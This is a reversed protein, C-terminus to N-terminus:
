KLMIMKRVSTYDGAQMRYLYVGSTVKQAQDDTGDWKVQYTGASKTEQVLTRVKQGKLNYIELRVNQKDKVSYSITTEPNFPNPYNGSLATAIVPTAPEPNAVVGEVVIDDMVWIYWLGDNSPPDDAHWALKINQNAYAALPITIPNTPYNNYAGGPQSTADWLPTWSSGGDTSVKVYYHDDHTSGLQVYSKFTLQADNPCTFQPSILWEDQHNYSWWLAAQWTGDPPVVPPNLTITGVRCWTPTVGYTNAAGTDTIIQTWGAPPFTAGEFSEDLVIGTPQLVFNLTTTQGTVVVVGTQTATAFGAASCTVTHTGAPVQLSYAGTANSTATYTGATIVAGPIAVNNSQRVIGAITGIQTLKQIANSFAPVSFVNGTYVAKVAWKYMGDTVTSWGIDQYATATITNPTLLSWLSENAEQGQLLRWVKYGVLARSTEPRYDTLASETHRSAPLATFIGDNAPNVNMVLPQLHTLRAPATPASYGVYGSLNWDYNLSTSLTYLTTWANNNYIMNGLGDHAPGADTGAPYVGAAHTVNYGFWLEQGAQIPVPVSLNVTNFADVTYGTFPEDVVMQAPGSASGGTWVRIRYTGTDGPWFKVAYLSMGVFDTLNAAPWRSAVDFTGGNTLGISNNNSDADWHIWEGGGTGPEMWTINVNPLAEVAQVGGAPLAIENLTIIGMNFDGVGVSITGNASIYGQKTISYSYDELNYVNPITFQGQANTTASYDAMGTLTVEAGALGATPADSGVVTGTVNVVAHKLVMNSIVPMSMVDGTYVSKVAWKYEGDPLAQWGANVYTTDTIPTATLLTWAAENTEQGQLLRWVRYGLLSRDLSGTNYPTLQPMSRDALRTPVGTSSGVYVDDIYWGAYSVVSTAYWEFSIQVNPNNAFASLDVNLVQWPMFVAAASSGWVTTGNVLILGYDWTNYGNMYHWFNLVPDSVGTLNYTKRLYSWGSSNTYGGQIKTGWMGTGSHASTPPTDTYTDIDTYSAPNYNATWEWDGLPNSWNSSPVWDGDDMEFNDFNSSSPDPAHWTINVATQETNLQAVVVSPPFAVENLTITGMNYNTDGVMITGTANQYGERAITYTYTNGSLVGTITFQGSANTTADYDLPGDLHVTADALGVTPADSGVVMGTVNVQQSAILIFNQTTAQGTTITVQQTQSQYGLKSCTVQYTGPQVFPFSYTGAANTLQHLTTNEITVLAGDVPNGGSTVSGSLSGMTTMNFAIGINPRSTSLYGNTTPPANDAYMYHHSGTTSTTYRFYQSSATGTGGYNTEVLVALNDGGYPFPTTFPIYIWGMRDFTITGEACVQADTITTAWPETVFATATTTKMLIRYPVVNGYQTTAYYQIGMILGPTTVEAPTYLSASREYGYLSGMPYRQTSTGTGINVIMTGVPFVMVHLPPSVDNLSNEDGALVVKGTIDAEGEATPTWALVVDLIEMSNIAPGNVSALETTGQMLKVQYNTQPASGRNRVSVTYNSAAGVSPSQSGAIALAQLDNVAPVPPNFEFTLGNPPFITQSFACTAANTTGSTTLTWDTATDRNFFDTTDAGRLGVQVTSATTTGATVTGYVFVIKNLTELLQIQFNIIDGTGTTSYRKYNKWQIICVRNPATGLTEMRLSAGAQAQLDRAFGAARNALQPPSIVSTSSLPTYSSSSTINVATAGLASQGFSIWGNNNIAIVDFIYDNFTFNFGIPLGVGTNVTGGAPVAPDVFRQDDSSETGFLTGGTIESYTSTTATFTYDSLFAYVPLTIISIVVFLLTRLLYKNM